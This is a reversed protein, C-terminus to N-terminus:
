RLGSSDQCGPRMDFIPAAMFGNRTPRRWAPVYARSPATIHRDPREIGGFKGSPLASWPCGTRLLHLIADLITRHTHKWPRGMKAHKPLLPELLAWERDTLRLGEKRRTWAYQQREGATWM